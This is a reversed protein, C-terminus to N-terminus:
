EYVINISTIYESLAAIQRGVEEKEMKKAAEEIKKGIETIAAFGYGGGSGKMSHGLIRITEFDNKKLAEEISAIDRRRNELYGPILDELDKDISITNDDM